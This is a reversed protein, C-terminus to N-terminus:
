GLGCNLVGLWSSSTKWATAASPKFELWYALVMQQARNLELAISVDQPCSVALTDEPCSRELVQDSCIARGDGKPAATTSGSGTVPGSRREDPAKRM